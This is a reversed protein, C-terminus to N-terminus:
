VRGMFAAPRDSIVADVGRRILDDAERCDNVTWVWLKRGNRKLLANTRADAAHRPAVAWISPPTRAFEVFSRDDAVIAVLPIGPATAFLAENVAPDLSGWRIRRELNSRWIRRAAAEATRYADRGAKLEIMLLTPAGFPLGLVDELLPPHEICGPRGVDLALIEGLEADALARTPEGETAKPLHDDHYVVMAGDATLHVDIEVALVGLNLARRIASLTNEPAEAAGGRHAVIRHAKLRPTATM